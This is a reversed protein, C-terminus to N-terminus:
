NKEAVAMEQDEGTGGFAEMLQSLSEEPLALALEADFPIDRGESQVNEWGLLAYRIIDATVASWDTKGRKTHKAVIAARAGTAIRRYFLKSGAIELTLREDKKVIQLPM